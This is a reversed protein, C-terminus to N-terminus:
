GRAVFLESITSSTGIVKRMLFAGLHRYSEFQSETFFQNSTAEHPFSQHNAAYASADAPMDHPLYPKIYLLSGISGDKYIIRALRAPSALRKNGAVVAHEFDIRIDLDIAARRLVIGLDGYTYDRDAGADIAIIYRCRRRLM